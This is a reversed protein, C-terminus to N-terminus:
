KKNLAEIVKKGITRTNKNEIEVDLDYQNIINILFAKVSGAM